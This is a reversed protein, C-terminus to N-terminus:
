EGKMCKSCPEYGENIIEEVTVLIRSKKVYSCEAKHYKTGSKTRYFNPDADVSWITSPVVVTTMESVPVTTTDSPLMYQTTSATTTVQTYSVADDSSFTTTSESTNIEIQATTSLIQTTTRNESTLEHHFSYIDVTAATESTEPYTNVVLAESRMLKSLKVEIDVAFVIIVIALVAFVANLIRKENRESM